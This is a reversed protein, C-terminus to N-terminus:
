HILRLGKRIRMGYRNRMRLLRHHESAGAAGERRHADARFRRHDAPKQWHSGFLRGICLGAVAFLGTTVGIIAASLWINLNMFAFSVGVAFADISCAFAIPLMHHWDFEPTEKANEEDEEFAERVMNGGILMLLFFIIWHDVATVYRSFTSTAFYGLIPFLAQFGGFWLASKLADMVRLRRVTLGKGISVAFADM